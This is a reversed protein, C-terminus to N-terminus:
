LSLLWRSGTGRRLELSVATLGGVRKTLSEVEFFGSPM